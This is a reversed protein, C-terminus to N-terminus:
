KIKVVYMKVGDHTISNFRLVINQNSTKNNLQVTYKGVNNLNAMPVGNLGINDRQLIHSSNVCIETEFSQGLHVFYESGDLSVNCLSDNIVPQDVIDLRIPLYTVSGATVNVEYSKNIYQTCNIFMIKIYYELSGYKHIISIQTENNTLNDPRLQLGSTVTRFFPRPSLENCFDKPMWAATALKPRDKLTINLSLTLNKEPTFILVVLYMKFDEEKAKLLTLEVDGVLKTRPTYVHSWRPDKVENGTKQDYITVNVHNYNHVLCVKLRATSNENLFLVSSNGGCLKPDCHDDSVDLTKSITKNKYDTMSCIYSNFSSCQVYNLVNTEVHFNKKYNQLSNVNKVLTQENLLSIEIHKPYNTGECMLFFDIENDQKNKKFSFNLESEAQQLILITFELKSRQSSTINVNWAGYDDSSNVKLMFNFYATRNVLNDVYFHV